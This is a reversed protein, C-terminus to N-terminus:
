LRKAKITGSIVVNMILIMLIILVDYKLYFPYTISVLRCASQTEVISATWIDICTKACVNPLCFTSWCIRDSVGLLISM